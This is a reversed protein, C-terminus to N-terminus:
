LFPLLEIRGDQMRAYYPNEVWEGLIILDTRDGLPYVVPTHEHGFIFYDIDSRQTSLYGRAFKVLFDDEDGFVHAVGGRKERNSHSWSMGFRVMADPHVVRQGIWRAWSSRFIKELVRGVPKHRYFTDGHALFLTKGEREVIIHGLHIDLGIEHQLYDGVWLDHNGTFFHIKIGNEVMSTLKSLVRVYGRPVTRRWEFWFDFVDGLLFLETCDHEIQSLFKVFNRERDIPDHDKFQLGLHVDSAFYIM